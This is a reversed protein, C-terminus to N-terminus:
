ETKKVKKRDIKAPLPCVRVKLLGGKKFFIYVPASTGDPSCAKIIVNELAYDRNDVLLKGFDLAVLVKDVGSPLFDLVGALFHGM